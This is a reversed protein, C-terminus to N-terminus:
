HYRSEESLHGLLQLAHICKELPGPDAVRLADRKESIWERTYCHGVIM